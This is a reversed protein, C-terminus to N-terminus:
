ANWLTKVVHLASYGIHVLSIPVNDIWVHICPLYVFFLVTIVVVALDNSKLAWYSGGKVVDQISLM